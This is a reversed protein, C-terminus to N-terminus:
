IAGGFLDKFVDSYSLESKEKREYNGCFEFIKGEPIEKGCTCEFQKLNKYRKYQCTYCSRKDYNDYCNPEHERVEEETGYFACYECKFLPKM